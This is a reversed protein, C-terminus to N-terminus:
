FWFDLSNERHRHAQTHTVGLGLRSVLMCGPDLSDKYLVLQALQLAQLPLHAQGLRSQFKGQLIVLVSVRDCGLVDLTSVSSPNRRQLRDVFVRPVSCLSSM